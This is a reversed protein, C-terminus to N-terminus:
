EEPRPLSDDFPQEDADEPLTVFPDLEIEVGPHRAELRALALQYEYELSVRGMRVLCMEFGPPEKYKEIVRKPLDERLAEGYGKSGRGDVGQVSSHVPGVGTAPAVRRLYINILGGREALDVSWADTTQPRPQPSRRFSTQSPQVDLHCSLRPWRGRCPCQVTGEDVQAKPKPCSAGDLHRRARKGQHSQRGQSPIQTLGEEKPRCFGGRKRSAKLAVRAEKIPIEQVDSASGFEAPPIPLPSPAPALVLPTTGPRGGGGGG